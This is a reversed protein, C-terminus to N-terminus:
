DNAFIIMVIGIDFSIRINENLFQNCVARPEFLTMDYSDLKYKAGKITFNKVVESIAHFSITEGYLGSIEMAHNALLVRNNEDIIEAYVGQRLAKLLIGINGLSHDVRTGTAGFFLIETCEKEKAREYGLDTDTYDKEANFQIVVVNEKKYYEIVEEKASDFDGLVLDPMIKYEYLSNCGSDVGIIFDDKKIYRLLLEKSPKNGGTVIIARM